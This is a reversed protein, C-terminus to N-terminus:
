TCSTYSSTNFNGAIIDKCISKFLTANAAFRSEYLHLLKNNDYVTCIGYRGYNGLNDYGKPNLTRAASNYKTPYWCKYTIDDRHDAIRSVEQGVDSRGEVSAFSPSGMREYASKTIIFFAPSAFIHKNIPASYHNSAQAPGIFGDVSIAYEIGETLIKREIPVCDIDCFVVVDQTTTKMIHTMWEGHNYQGVSYNVPINFHEYVQKHSNVIDSNANEWYMSHISIKM